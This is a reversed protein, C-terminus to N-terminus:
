DDTQAPQTSEIESGQQTGYDNTAGGRVPMNSDGSDEFREYLWYEGKIEIVIDEGYQYVKSGVISHNAQFNKKPIGDTISQDNIVESEIEGLYDFEKKLETYSTQLTSQKYLTDNIYVMPVNDTIPMNGQGQQPESQWNPITLAGVVVFCLCAVMAAWKLWVPKHAKKAVAFDAAKEIYETSINSVADSITKRTM